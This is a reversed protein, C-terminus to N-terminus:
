TSLWVVPDKDWRSELVIARHREQVLAGLARSLERATARLEEALRVFTKPTVTHFPSSLAMAAVIQNTHDRVPAGVALVSQTSEGLTFTVGMPRCRDLEDALLSTSTITRANVPALKPGLLDLLDARTMDLLLAKGVATAHLRRRDGPRAAIRLAQHGEFTMLYMAETGERVAFLTGFGTSEVLRRLYVHAIPELQRYRTFSSGVAFATPGVRYKATLPNQTVFGATVLTALLRHVITNPLGLNQGLATVGLEGGRAESMAILVRMARHVTQLTEREGTARRRRGVTLQARKRTRSDASAKPRM